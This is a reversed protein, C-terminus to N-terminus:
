IYISPYWEYVYVYIYVDSWQMRIYIMYRCTQTHTHTHNHTHPEKYILVNQLFSCLTTTQISVCMSSFFFVNACECVCVCKGVCVSVCMSVSVCVCVCLGIWGCMWVSVCFFYLLTRNLRELLVQLYIDTIIFLHTFVSTHVCVCWDAHFSSIHTIGMLM